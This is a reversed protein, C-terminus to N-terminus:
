KNYGHEGGELAVRRKQGIYEKGMAFVKDESDEEPVHSNHDIDAM